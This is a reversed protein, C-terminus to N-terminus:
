RAPKVTRATSAPNPDNNKRNAFGGLYILISRREGAQLATM